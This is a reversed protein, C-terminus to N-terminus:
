YHFTCSYKVCILKVIGLPVYRLYVVILNQEFVVVEANAGRVNLNVVALVFVDFVREDHTVLYGANYGLDALVDGVVLDAVANNNLRLDDATVAIGAFCPAKVDALVQLDDAYM